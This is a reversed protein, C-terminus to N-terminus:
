KEMCRKFTSAGDWKKREANIAKAIELIDDITMYPAGSEDVNLYIGRACDYAKTIIDDPIDASM